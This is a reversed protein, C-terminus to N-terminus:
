QDCFFLQLSAATKLCLSSEGYIMPFCSLLWLIRLWCVIAHRTLRNDTQDWTLIGYWSLTSFWKDNLALWCSLQTSFIRFNEQANSMSFTSRLTLSETARRSKDVDKSTNRGKLHNSTFLWVPKVWVREFWRFADPASIMSLHQHTLFFCVTKPKKPWNTRNNSWCSVRCLFSDLNCELM